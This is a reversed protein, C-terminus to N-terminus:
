ANTKNILLKKNIKNRVENINIEIKKFFYSYDKTPQYVLEYVKIRDRELVDLIKLLHKLEEKKSNLYELGLIISLIKQNKLEIGNGINRGFVKHYRVEEEESWPMRKISSLVKLVNDSYQPNFNNILMQMNSNYDVANEAHFKLIEGLKDLHEKPIEKGPYESISEEYLPIQRDPPSLVKFYKVPFIEKNKILEIWQGMNYPIKKWSYDFDATFEYEICIGKHENSYHSWLKESFPNISFSCIACEDISKKLAKINKKSEEEFSIDSKGNMKLENDIEKLEDLYLIQYNEILFRASDFPDNLYKPNSLWISKNEINALSYENIMRYKYLSFTKM